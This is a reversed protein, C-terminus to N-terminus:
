SVSYIYPITFLSSVPNVVSAGKCQVACEEVINAAEFKGQRRYLAALNRM